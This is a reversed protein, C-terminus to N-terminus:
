MRNGKARAGAPKGEAGVDRKIGGGPYPQQARNTDQGPAPGLASEPGNVASGEPDREFHEYAAQEGAEGPVRQARRLILHDGENLNGGDGADVAYGEQDDPDGERQKGGAQHDHQARGRTGGPDALDNEGGEDDTEEEIEAIPLQRPFGDGFAGQVNGENLGANGLRQYPVGAPVHLPEVFKYAEGFLGQGVPGIQEDPGFGGDGAVGTPVGVEIGGDGVKDALMAYPEDETGVVKVAGRRRRWGM